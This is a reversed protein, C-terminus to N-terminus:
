LVDDGRVVHAAPTALEDVGPQMQAQMGVHQDERTRLGRQPPGRTGSSGIVETHSVQWRGARSWRRPRYTSAVDRWGAFISGSRAACAM